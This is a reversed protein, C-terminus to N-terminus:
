VGAAARTGCSVHRQLASRWTPMRSRPSDYPRCEPDARRRVSKTLARSWGHRLGRLTVAAKAASTRREM